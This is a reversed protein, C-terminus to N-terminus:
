TKKPCDTKKKQLSNRQAWEEIIKKLAQLLRAVAQLDTPKTILYADTICYSHHSLVGFFWMRGLVYVGYIAEQTENLAQSALMSALLQGRVDTATGQESKYEHLCFIPTMPRNKGTAVMWDVKGHLHINGIIAEITREAFTSFHLAESNFDTLSLVPAIFLERLEAENWSEIYIKARKRLRELYHTDLKNIKLYKSQLLWADLIPCNDKRVIGFHTRLDDQTWQSFTKSLGM